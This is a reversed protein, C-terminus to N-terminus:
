NVKVTRRAAGQAIGHQSGDRRGSLASPPHGYQRRFAKAFQAPQSYGVAAATARVTWGLDLLEAARQMRVGCLYGRFNGLGAEAFARQLQRRSVFLRGAVADVTLEESYQAAMIAVAEEFLEKRHARTAARIM